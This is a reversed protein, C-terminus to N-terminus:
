KQKDMDRRYQNVTDTTRRFGRDVEMWGAIIMQEMPHVKKLPSRGMKDDENQHSKGDYQIGLEACLNRDTLVKYILFRRNIHM